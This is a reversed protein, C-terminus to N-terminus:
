SAVQSPGGDMYLYIVNKAKAPYHPRNLNVKQEDAKASEHFLTAAAVSGFGLATQRLMNRRSQPFGQIRGCPYDFLNNKSMM